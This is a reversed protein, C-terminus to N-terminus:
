DGLRMHGSLTKLELLLVCIVPLCRRSYLSSPFLSPQNIHSHPLLTLIFTPSYFPSPQFNAGAGSRLKAETGSALALPRRSMKAQEEDKASPLRPGLPRAPCSVFKSNGM